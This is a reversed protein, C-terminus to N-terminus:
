PSVSRLATQEADQGERDNPEASEDEVEMRTRGYTAAVTARAQETLAKSPSMRLQEKIFVEPDHDNAVLWDWVKVDDFKTTAYQKMSMGLGRLAQQMLDSDYTPSKGKPVFAAHQDEPILESLAKHDVVSAASVNLDGLVLRAGDLRQKSLLQILPEAQREAEDLLAKGMAKMQAVSTGVASWISRLEDMGELRPRTIYSPVEGRMVYAWYHDGSVLILKALEPDYQVVDDKLGWAAWDFQSLMLGDLHVGVNACVLAGQHLQCSYQFAIEESQDVQRPAKYDILWRAVNLGGLNPNPQTVPVLVVDDPSYRMWGRNGSGKSLQDFAAVDRQSSYKRYFWEAHRPENEHGRRLDGTESDPVRRLLKGEIIDHASNMHDARHGMYNRVLVGIESGGFGGARIAHWIAMEGHSDVVDRVWARIDDERLLERHAFGDIVELCRQKIQSQNQM